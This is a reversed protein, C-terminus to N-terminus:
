VIISTVKDTTTQLRCGYGTTYKFHSFLQNRKDFHNRPKKNKPSYMAGLSSVYQVTQVTSIPKSNALALYSVVCVIYIWKRNPHIAKLTFLIGWSFVGLQISLFAFHQIANTKFSYLPHTNSYSFM